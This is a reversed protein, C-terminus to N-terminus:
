KKITIKANVDYEVEPLYQPKQGLRAIVADAFEMTNVLQKSTAEKYIDATHIGEGIARSWANKIKMGVEQERIHNLMM